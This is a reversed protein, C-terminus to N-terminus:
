LLGTECQITYSSLSQGPVTAHQTIVYCRQNKIGEGSSQVLSVRSVEGPGAPVVLKCDILIKDYCNSLIIFGSLGM